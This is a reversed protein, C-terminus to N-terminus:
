AARAVSDAEGLAAAISLGIARAMDPPVANGVQRGVATLPQEKWHATWEYLPYTATYSAELLEERARTGLESQWYQVVERNLYTDCVATLGLIKGRPGANHNIMEAIKYDWLM